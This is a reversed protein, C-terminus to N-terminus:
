DKDFVVRQLYVGPYYFGLIEKFNYGMEAMGRAGWQCLGVGHGKGRGKFVLFQKHNSITFNTSKIKDYGILERLRNAYITTKGGTHYLALRIVRGSVDRKIVSVGTIDGINLMNQIKQKAIRYSWYQSNQPHRCFPCKRGRLYPLYTCGWAASNSTTRGGCSSHYYVRAIHSDYTLVLDKTEDVAENTIKSEASVGKYVQCCVGNCLHYKDVYHKKINALAFTRAIIAQAKLAELPFTTPMECKVVGYLYEEVDVVNIVKIRNTQKCLSIEIDGRYPLSDIKGFTGPMPKLIIPGLFAGVDEVVLRNGEIWIKYDRWGYTTLIIQHTHTDILDFYSTGSVRVYSAKHKLGIRLHFAEVSISNCYFIVVSFLFWIIKRHYIRFINKM